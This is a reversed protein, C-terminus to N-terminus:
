HRGPTEWGLIVMVYCSTHTCTCSFIVKVYCSTHTHLNVHVIMFTIAGGRGVWGWRLIVMVYCSTQTSTSM